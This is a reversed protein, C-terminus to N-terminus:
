NTVKMPQTFAKVIDGATGGGDCAGQQAIALAHRSPANDKISKWPPQAMAVWNGAANVRAYTKVEANPCQIGEYAVNLSGSANRMIVVYRVVGDTAGVSITKPDIGVKLTVYPPMEIPILKDQSYAPPLPTTEELWGLPEAATQSRVVAAAIALWFGFFVKFGM